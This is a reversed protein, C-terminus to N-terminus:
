GLFFRKSELFREASNAVLFRIKMNKVQSMCVVRLCITHCRKEMLLKIDGYVPLRVYQETRSSTAQSMNIPKSWMSDDDDLFIM